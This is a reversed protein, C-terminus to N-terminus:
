PAGRMFIVAVLMACIFAFGLVVLLATAVIRVTAMKSRRYARYYPRESM